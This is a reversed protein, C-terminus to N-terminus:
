WYADDDVKIKNILENVVASIDVSTDNSLELCVYAMVIPWFNSREVHWVWM